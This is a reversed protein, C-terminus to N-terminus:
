DGISDWDAVLDGTVAAFVGSTSSLGLQLGNRLRFGRPPLIVGSMGAAIAVGPDDPVEGGTMPIPNDYIGLYAIGGSNNIASARWLISPGVNALLQSAGIAASSTPLSMALEIKDHASPVVPQDSGWCELVLEGTEDSLDGPPGPDLTVMFADCQRGRISLVLQCRVRDGGLGPSGVTNGPVDRPQQSQLPVLSAGDRGWLTLTARPWPSVTAVSSMLWVDACNWSGVLECLTDRKTAAAQLLREVRKRAPKSYDRLDTM